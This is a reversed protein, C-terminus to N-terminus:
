YVYRHDGNLYTDLYNATHEFFQHERGDSLTQSHEQKSNIKQKDRQEIIM